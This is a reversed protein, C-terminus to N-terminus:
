PPTLLGGSNLYEVNRGGWVFMQSGTWGATSQYRATPAGVTPTATWSNLAPDFTGGDNLYTNNRIGGWVLMKSGTWVTSHWFRAGPAGTPEVASWSNAVPDYIGGDNLDSGGGWIIM